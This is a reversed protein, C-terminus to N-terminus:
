GAPPYQRRTHVVTLVDLDTPTTIEYVIIYPLGTVSFERTGAIKGTRGIMPFQGLLMATQRIRSLTRDAVREDIQSLWDRIAALDDRAQPTFEVKM